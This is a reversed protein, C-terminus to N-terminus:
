RSSFAAHLRGAAGGQRGGEIIGKRKVRKGGTEEEAESNEETKTRRGAGRVRVANEGRIEKNRRMLGKIKGKDVVRGTLEGEKRYLETRTRWESM